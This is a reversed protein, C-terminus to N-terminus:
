GILLNMINIYKEINKHIDFMSTARDRCNKTYSEAGKKEVIRIKEIFIQPDLNDLLFGCKEDNGILEPTATGNYAVVPTGCSLAEATTKGFTEQISPNVFVDALSYYEALNHIDLVPGICRINPDSVNESNGILVIIEDDNLLTALKRFFGLGKYESWNAAVGLIVNYKEYGYKEKIKKKNIPSFTELDIWNYITEIIKAKKMISQKVDGTVWNSVGVVAYNSHKEYLRRKDSLMKKSRDFIISKNGKHLAPCDGCKEKWKSCNDEQYYVCKGTYFWCDHLVFILPIGKKIFYCMLMPFNIYNSHLNRLIVIDPNFSDIYRIAKKTEHSSFYGQLGSIRSLVAHLRHDFATGIMYGDKNNLVDSTTMVRSDIGSEVFYKHMEETTRGTSYKSYVANIQIVRM